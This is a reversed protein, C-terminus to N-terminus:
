RLPILCWRRSGTYPASSVKHATSPLRASWRLPSPRISTRTSQRISRAQTHREERPTEPPSQTRPHPRGALLSRHQVSTPLLRQSDSCLLASAESLSGPRRPRRSPVLHKPTSLYAIWATVTSSSPPTSTVNQLHAFM